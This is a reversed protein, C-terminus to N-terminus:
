VRTFSHLIGSWRGTIGGNVEGVLKNPYHLLVPQVPVGALFAGPSFASFLSFLVPPRSHTVSSWVFFHIMHSFPGLGETNTGSMGVLTVSFSQGPSQSLTTNIVQNSSSWSEGTRQPERLFCWCRALLSSSVNLLLSPVCVCMWVSWM